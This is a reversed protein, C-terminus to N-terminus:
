AASGFFPQRDLYLGSRFSVSGLHVGSGQHLGYRVVTLYLKTLAVGVRNRAAGGILVDRASNNDIYAVVPCGCLSDRWVVMALIAACLEAEFIISSTHGEGLRRRQDRTLELSFFKLPKGHADLLVGGLGCRESGPQGEYAADTFLYMPCATMRSVLRPPGKVLLDLYLSIAEAAEDSLLGGSLECSRLAQVCLKALRGFLQGGAYLMRGRLREIFKTSAKREVLLSELSQQLEEVRSPTNTFSVQGESFNAFSVRIGLAGFEASFDQDKDEAVKWGLLRFFNGLVQSVLAAEGKRCVTIFDDFFHTMMLSLCKVALWWLSHAIRLYGYVARSAGFPLAYMCRLIPGKTAPDYYCINSYKLSQDSVPVQRYASKLDVCKGEFATDAPFKELMALCLSGLLDTSQPKPSETKQVSANLSSASCDDIVRPKGKQIIAFRRNILADDQLSAPDMPESVWGKLEEERTKEAIIEDHPSPKSAEEIASKRLSPAEQAIMDLSKGAPRFSPPFVGSTPVQGELDVGHKMLSVVSPDPYGYRQLLEEYLLIRKGQLVAARSHPMSGHLEKEFPALEKARASWRKFWSLRMSALDQLSTSANIEVSRELAAPLLASLMRPHGAAVAKEIFQDESFPIGWALEALSEGEKGTAAHARLLQAQVPVPEATCDPPLWPKKLRAMNSVPLQDLTSTHAHMVRVERHEPVLPSFASAKPQPGTRARVEPM